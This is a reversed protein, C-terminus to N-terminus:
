NLTWCDSQRTSKVLLRYHAGADSEIYCAPIYTLRLDNTESGPSAKAPQLGPAL